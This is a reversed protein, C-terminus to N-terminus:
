VPPPVPIAAFIAQAAEVYSAAPALTVVPPVPEGASQAVAHAQLLAPMHENLWHQLRGFDAESLIGTAEAKAQWGDAVSQVASATHPSFVVNRLLAAGATTAVPLIVNTLGTWQSTGVVHHGVLFEGVLALAGAVAVPEKSIVWDRVRSVLGPTVGGTADVSIGHTM